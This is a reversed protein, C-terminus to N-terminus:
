FQRNEGSEYHNFEGSALMADYNSSTKDLKAPGFGKNNMHHNADRRAINELPTGTGSTRGSYIEKTTPNTKTYTQYTKSSNVTDSVKSGASVTNSLQGVGGVAQLAGLGAELYNGNEIDDQVSLAGGAVNAIAGTVRATKIAAGAGGPICPIAVAATDAIIGLSDIVAGKVNGSKVDAVLSAIGAALSFVDWATEAFKGDPDSYSVPNNGAYHYM